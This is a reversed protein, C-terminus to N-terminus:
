NQLASIRNLLAVSLINLIMKEFSILRYKHGDILELTINKKSKMTNYKESNM